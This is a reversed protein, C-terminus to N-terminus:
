APHFYLGERTTSQVYWSIIVTILNYLAFLSILMEIHNLYFNVQDLLENVIMVLFVLTKSLKVRGKQFWKFHNFKSIHLVRFLEFFTIQPKVSKYNIKVQGHEELNNYGEMYKSDSYGGILASSETM